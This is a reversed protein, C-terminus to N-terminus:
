LKSELKGSLLLQGVTDTFHKVGVGWGWGDGVVCAPSM